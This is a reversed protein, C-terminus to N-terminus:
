LALYMVIAVAIAAIAVALFYGGFVFAFPVAPAEEEMPEDESHFAQRTSEVAADVNESFEPQKDDDGLPPDYESRGWKEEEARRAEEEVRRAAEESKSAESMNSRGPCVFRRDISPGSARRAVGGKGGRVEIM